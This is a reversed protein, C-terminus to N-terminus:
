DDSELELELQLLEGQLKSEQPSLKTNQSMKQAMEFIGLLEVGQLLRAADEDDLQSPLCHFRECLSAEFAAYPIGTEGTYGARM